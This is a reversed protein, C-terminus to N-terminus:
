PHHRTGYGAPTSQKGQLKYISMPYELLANAM